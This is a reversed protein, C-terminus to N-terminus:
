PSGAEAPKCRTLPTRGKLFARWTPETMVIHRAWAQLAADLEREVVLTLTDLKQELSNGGDTSMYSASSRSRAVLQELEGRSLHRAWMGAAVVLAAARNDLMVPLADADIRGLLDTCDKDAALFTKRQQGIADRVVAEIEENGLVADAYALAARQHAPDFCALPPREAREKCLQGLAAKQVAAEYDALAAATPLQLDRARGWQGASAFGRRLAEAEMRAVSDVVVFGFALPVLTITAFLVVRAPALKHLKTAVLDLTAPALLLGAALFSLAGFSSGAMAMAAGACLVLTLSVIWLLVHGAGIRWFM